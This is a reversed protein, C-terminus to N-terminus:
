LHIQKVQAPVNPLWAQVIETFMGVSGTTLFEYHAVNTMENALHYYALLEKVNQATEEASSVVQINSGLEKEILPQLLPYHTCGLIVTDFAQGILPKLSEHVIKEAFEGEYENSEVVPVFLPCAFPVIEASTSLAKIAIEYAGSRVTGITGLVAISQKKTAKMAARAGPFIVGVVPFDCYKQLSELAVATATNCAVVLLKIGQKALYEAMQWTFQRVEKGSRPGYPCRASDGLYIIDENPLIRMLEKVVTLGGVGSDIVGIASKQISNEM